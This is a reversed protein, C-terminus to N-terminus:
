LGSCDILKGTTEVTVIMTNYRLCNKSLNRGFLKIGIPPPTFTLPPYWKNTGFATGRQQGASKWRHDYVSLSFVGAKAPTEVLKGFVGRQQRKGSHKERLSDCM